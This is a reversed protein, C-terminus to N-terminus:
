IKGSVAYHYFMGWAKASIKNESALLQRIHEVDMLLVEIDEAEELWQNSVEGAVEALVMICSEDSMGASSYVARSVYNIKVLELGTEEKLEREVTETIDEDDDILGAPFGYEYDWIPM